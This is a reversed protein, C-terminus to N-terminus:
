WTRKFFVHGDIQYWATFLPWEDHSDVYHDAHFYLFDGINNKGALAEECAKRCSSLDRSRYKEIQSYGSFQGPATVVDYVTDGYKGGLLRNLIVNAVALQGEYPEWYAETAVILVFLELDDETLTIPDRYTVPISKIHAKEIKAAREAAAIEELSMAENQNCVLTVYEAYLYAVTDATYQVAIWDETSLSLLAPYVAGNGSSGVKDYETGPGSRINLTGATVKAHFATIKDAYAKARDGLYLYDSFIYGTVNGSSIHTWDGETDLVEAIGDEFLKGVVATDTSAGERINVFDTVNAIAKTFHLPEPTPTATPSPSPTPSPTATPSPSVTPSPTASPTPSLTPTTTPAATPTVADGKKSSFPTITPFEPTDTGEPASTVVAASDASIPPSDTQTDAIAFLSGSISALFFCACSSAASVIRYKLHKM